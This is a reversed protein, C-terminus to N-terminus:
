VIQRVPRVFTGYGPNVKIEGDKMVVKGRVMTIVPVGKVTWGEYQNILRQKTHLDKGHLEKEKNMDVFVLDADSGIGIIGKQPYIGFLQAPREVISEMLRALSLHGKNVENLLLPFMVEISSGDPPAAFIDEWGKEMEEKTYPAHDSNIIDFEGNLYSKWTSEQYDKGRFPPVTCGYPGLNAMDDENIFLYNCALECTVDAGTNKADQVLQVADPAYVHCMNVRAGTYKAFCMTKATGEIESIVPRYDGFADIDKRGEAQLKNMCYENIEKNEAHVCVMLGTKKVERLIDIFSGDELIILGKMEAVRDPALKALFTKFAVAGADALKTIEEINESGAGAYLGFDVIARSEALKRKAEFAEVTSTPPLNNPMDLITTIGGGAAAATITTLDERETSGPERSHVHSDIAGPLVLLGNADIKEEAEPLYAKDTIAIIKGDKISIGVKQLRKDMWVKGNVINVDAKM